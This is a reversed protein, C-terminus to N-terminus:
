YKYKEGGNKSKECKQGYIFCIRGGDKNEWENEKRGKKGTDRKNKIKYFLANKGKRRHFKRGETQFCIGRDNIKQGKM